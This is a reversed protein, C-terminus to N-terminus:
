PTSCPTTTGKTHNLYANGTNVITTPTISYAAALSSFASPSSTAINAMEFLILSNADADIISPFASKLSARLLNVYKVAMLSHQALADGPAVGYYEFYGHLGEHLMTIAALEQSAGPLVNENLYVTINFVTDGNANITTQTPTPTNGMRTNALTTSQKYTINVKASVNFTSDILNGITNNINQTLLVKNLTKILCTDTLSDIITPPPPPAVPCPTPTPSPDPFGGGGDDGGGDGDGPYAVNVRPTVGIHSSLAKMASAPCLPDSGGGGGTPPTYADCTTYLYYSGVYQNNLYVDWYWDICDGDDPAAVELKKVSAFSQPALAVAAKSAPTVLKGNKYAYASVFKGKPTFYLVMGSFNVDRKRFTNKALGAPNSQLYDPEAIITMIFAQYGTGDNLLIFSSKSNEKVAVVQGTTRNKLAAAIKNSPDVPIEIV